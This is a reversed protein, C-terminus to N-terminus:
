PTRVPRLMHESLDGTLDVIIHRASFRWGDHTHEFRDHYRGAIIPQLALAGPVAQLVTYYSRATATTEDDDVVIALNTTVHKTHPTGDDLRRTWSTYMALAEDRGRHVVDTGANTIEASAFLDAVGEFDGLDIREAYAYVLGEIAERAQSM